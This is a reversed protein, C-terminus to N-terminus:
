EDLYIAEARERKHIPVHLLMREGGAKTYIYINRSKAADCGLLSQSGRRLTYYKCGASIVYLGIKNQNM